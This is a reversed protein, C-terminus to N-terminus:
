HFYVGAAHAQSMILTCSDGTVNTCDGSWTSITAAPGRQAALTITEGDPVMAVCGSGNRCSTGPGSLTGDGTAALTLAYLWRFKIAAEIPASDIHVTCSADNGNCAGSWGDFHRMSDLPTTLTVDTGRVFEGTCTSNTCVLGPPDSTVVHAGSMQVTVTTVAEFRADVEANFSSDITCKGTGTCDGSWGRFAFGMDPTATLEVVGEANMHMTCMDGCDIGFPDSKVSGTGAGSKTVTLETDPLCGALGLGVGLVLIAIRM